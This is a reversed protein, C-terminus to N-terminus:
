HKLTQGDEAAVIDLMAGLQAHLVAASHPKLDLSLRGQKPVLITLQLAPAGPGGIQRGLMVVGEEGDPTEGRVPGAGPPEIPKAPM